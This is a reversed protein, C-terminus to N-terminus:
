FARRMWWPRLAGLEVGGAGMGHSGLQLRYVHDWVGVVDSADRGVM